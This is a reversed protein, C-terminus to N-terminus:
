FDKVSLNEELTTRNLEMGERWSQGSERDMVFFLMGMSHQQWWWAEILQHNNSSRFVNKWMKTIGLM